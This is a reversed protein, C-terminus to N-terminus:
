LRAQELAKFHKTFTTSEQCIFFIIGLIILLRAVQNRVERVEGKLQDSSAATIDRGSLTRIIAAYM